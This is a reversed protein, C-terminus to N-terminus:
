RGVTHREIKEFYKWRKQPNKLLSAWELVKRLPLMFSPNVHIFTEWRVHSRASLLLVAVFLCHLINVYVCAYKLNNSQMFVSPQPTPSTGWPNFMWVWLLAEKGKLLAGYKFQEQLLGSINLNLFKDTVSTSQWDFSHIVIFALPGTNSSIYLAEKWLQVGFKSPKIQQVM